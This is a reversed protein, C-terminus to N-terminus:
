GGSGKAGMVQPVPMKQSSPRQLRGRIRGPLVEVPVPRELQFAYGTRDVEIVTSFTDLGVERRFYALSHGLRRHRRHALIYNFLRVALHNHLRHCGLSALRWISTYDSSGHTRIGEDLGLEFRGDRLQRARRHYAAILGYASAYSPGILNDNVEQVLEGTSRKRTEMVLSSSPVGKPPLWVPAAVIQSWVRPGVPSEKYVFMDHGRTNVIRWGGITTPYRALAVVAGEHRAYLTLVPLREAPQDRPTGDADYPFEYYIDGRDIEVFLDMQPQHYDPLPVPDVALTYHPLDLWPGLRAYFRRVGALTQIGLAKEIRHRLPTAVDPAPLPREGSNTRWSAFREDYRTSGDAILGLDLLLRESLM